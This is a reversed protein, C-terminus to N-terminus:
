STPLATGRARAAESLGPPLSFRVDEQVVVHEETVYGLGRILDAVGEVLFEPASAGATLGVTRRGELWAAEVEEPSDILHAEVGQAEAAECLRLSNSSNDSGVVILLEIGEKLLAKVADQRNQTAYCIDDKKPGIISPFRHRLAEIIQRTEDVSLTTQTTYAVREPDPIQLHEVEEPTGVLHIRDPAEGMTGIVEDHGDHGILVIDYGKSTFRRVELHVKTVLPCTADIVQLDRARAKEWVAPSVGHASFIVWSGSPVEDLSEVFTVGRERFGDVVAKNHVIERRVYLPPPFAELALDVIDIARDVGACFGRPAAVILRGMEGQASDAM